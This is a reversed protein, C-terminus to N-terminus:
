FYALKTSDPSFKPNQARGLVETTVNIYNKNDVDYLLIDWKTTWSMNRDKRHVSFAIYKENSSIDFQESGYEIPPSCLNQKNIM